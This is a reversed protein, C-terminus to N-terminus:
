KMPVQKAKAKVNAKAKVKAKAKGKAKAKAAGINPRMARIHGSSTTRVGGPLPVIPTQQFALARTRGRSRAEVQSFYSQSVNVQVVAITGEVGYKSPVIHAVQHWRGQANRVWELDVAKFADNAGLHRGVHVSAESEDIAKRVWSAAQTEVKCDGWNPGGEGRERWKREFSEQGSQVLVHLEMYKMFRKMVASVEEYTAASDVFSKLTLGSMKNFEKTLDRIQERMEEESEHVVQVPVNQEEAM